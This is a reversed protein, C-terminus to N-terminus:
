SNVSYKKYIMKYTVILAVIGVTGALAILVASIIIDWVAAIGSAFYWLSYLMWMIGNEKNYAKVDTIEYDSVESGAWFWMPKKLRLAYVGIAFFLIACGFTAACMIIVDEM